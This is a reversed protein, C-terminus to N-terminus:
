LIHGYGYIVPDGATYCKVRCRNSSNGEITFIKGDTVSTIIGVHDRGGDADWDFFIFDGASPTETAELWLDREVFWNIGEPVYAFKPAADADLAGSENAAWSAFCACWDVRDEFGYWSWFPRGDLNGIASKAANVIPLDAMVSVPEVNYNDYAKDGIAKGLARAGLVTLLLALAAFIVRRRLANAKRRKAREQRNKLIEERIQEDSYTEKNYDRDMCISYMM